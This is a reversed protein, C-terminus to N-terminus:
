YAAMNSALFVNTSVVLLIIGNKISGVSYNVVLIENTPLLWSVATLLESVLQYDLWM